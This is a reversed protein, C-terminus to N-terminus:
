NREIPIFSPAAGSAGVQWANLAASSQEALERRAHWHQRMYKEVSRTSIREGYQTELLHKVAGAPWLEAFMTLLKEQLGPHRNELVQMKTSGRRCM